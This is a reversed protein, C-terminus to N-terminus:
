LGVFGKKKKYEKGHRVKRRYGKLRGQEVGKKTLVGKIDPKPCSLVELRNNQLPVVYRCSVHLVLGRSLSLKRSTVEITFRHSGDRWLDECVVVGSGNPDM